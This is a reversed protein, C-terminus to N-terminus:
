AYNYERCNKGKKCQLCFCPGDDSQVSEDGTDICVLINRGNRKVWGVNGSHNDPFYFGINEMEDCLNLIEEELGCEIDERDCCDCSNGPCCTLTAIETIYGWKSLRKSNGIRVRGVESYVRPALDHEALKTQNYHAIFAADHNDFAKFGRRSHKMKYFYSACGAGSHKNDISYM